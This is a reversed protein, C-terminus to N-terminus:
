GVMRLSPAGPERPRTTALTRFGPNCHTVIRTQPTIMTKSLGQGFPHVRASPDHNKVCINGKGIRVVKVHLRRSLVM